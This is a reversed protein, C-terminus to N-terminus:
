WIRRQKCRLHSRNMRLSTTVGTVTNLQVNWQTV